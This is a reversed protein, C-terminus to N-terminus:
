EKGSHHDPQRVTQGPGPSNIFGVREKEYADRIEDASAARPSYRVLSYYDRCDIKTPEDM